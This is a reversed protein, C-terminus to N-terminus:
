NLKLQTGKSTKAQSMSQKILINLDVKHEALNYKKYKKLKNREVSYQLQCM